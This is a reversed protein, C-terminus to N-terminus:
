KGQIAQLARVAEQAISPDPDNKLKQLPAISDTEGSRAMVGALDIKETKTGTLMPGYLGARVTPDRALEILYPFATDRFSASDLADIIAQLPSFESVVAQGEMVLAFQIALRVSPKGEAKLLKQLMPVDNPQKLRGIGEAAATRMKEDKDSLYQMFLPRGQESPLMALSTLAARRVRDDRGNRVLDILEPISDRDLLLGVTEVAAVQVKPDLDHLRFAIRPGASIDKIKRVAVISEYILDTDKSHVADILQPLADHGRLIGLARAANAKADVSAGSTLVRALASIVEPRVTIYPDIVQDNVDTFKAKLSTGVNHLTAGLGSRFYGPLYFNVLGDTALMEVRMDRDSTALILPDLSRGTGIEALQKVVEARVDPNPDQLMEQLKPIASSGNRAVERVDKPQLPKQAFSPFSLTLLCAFSFVLRM